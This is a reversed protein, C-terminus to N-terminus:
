PAKLFGRLAAVYRPHAAVLEDANRFLLRQRCARFEERGLHPCCELIRDYDITV